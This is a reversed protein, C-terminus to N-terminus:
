PGFGLGALLRATETDEDWPSSLHHDIRAQSATDADLDAQRHSRVEQGADFRDGGRNNAWMAEVLAPGTTVLFGSAQESPVFVVTDGPVVGLARRISAPIVVRGDPSVKGELEPGTGSMRGHHRVSDLWSSGYSFLGHCIPPLTSLVLRRRHHRRRCTRPGVPVDNRPLISERALYPNARELIEIEM